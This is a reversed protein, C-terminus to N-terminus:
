KRVVPLHIFGGITNTVVNTTITAEADFVISTQNSILTGQALRPKARITFAVHGEGRHTADNPPLFGALPDDPPQSTLPDLTQLTWTVVGAPYNIQASM